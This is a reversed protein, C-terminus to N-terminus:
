YVRKFICSRIRHATLSLIMFVHEKGRECQPGTFGYVCACRNPGICRGGNQCGNECVATKFYFSFDTIEARLSVVTHSMRHQCSKSYWRSRTTWGDPTKEMCYVYLSFDSIKEQFIVEQKHIFGNIFLGYVRIESSLIEQVRSDWNMWTLM